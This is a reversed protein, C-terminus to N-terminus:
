SEKDLFRELIDLKFKKPQEGGIFQIYVWGNAMDISTVTGKGFTKHNLTQGINYDCSAKSKYSVVDLQKRITNSERVVDTTGAKSVNLESTKRSKTAMTKSATKVDRVPIQLAQVNPPNSTTVWNVDVSGYTYKSIFLRDAEWKSIALRNNPNHAHYSINFDLFSLTEYKTALGSELMFMLVTQRYKASFGDKASVNYGFLMFKSKDALDYKGKGSIDDRLKRYDPLPMVMGLLRGYRCIRNYEDSTIYYITDSECSRATFALYQINGNKMIVAAIARIPAANRWEKPSKELESYIIFKRIDIYCSGDDTTGYWLHVTKNHDSRYQNNNHSVKTGVPISVLIIFIIIVIIFELM